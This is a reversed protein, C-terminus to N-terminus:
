FELSIFNTFINFYVIKKKLLKHVYLWCLIEIDDSLLM